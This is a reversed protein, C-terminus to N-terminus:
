KGGTSGDSAQQAPAAQDAAAAPANAPSELWAGASAAAAKVITTLSRSTITSATIAAVDQKVEFADTLFKGTFQGPFTLKKEKNVYYASNKANMGLGPTDNLDLIRVGAISRNLGVGILLTANGGYSSGSARVAVGLPALSTKALFAQEFVVDGSPATLSASIDEFSEAEPFVEKLSATLAKQSQEAIADKTIAYVGALCACGVAAFIALILGLKANGKM